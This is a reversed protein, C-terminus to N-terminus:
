SLFNVAQHNKNILNFCVSTEMIKAYLDTTCSKM